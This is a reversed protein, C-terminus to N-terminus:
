QDDDEVHGYTRRIVINSITGTTVGFEEALLVRREGGAVRRRIERVQDDTLKQMRDRCHDRLEQTMVRAAAAERIRQRQYDTHFSRGKLAASRKAKTEESQRVGRRADAMRRLTEAPIGRTGEGGDAINTLPLGDSRGAAIYVREMWAWDSGPPTADIVALIPKLGLTKLGQVWNCRHTNRAEQMHQTLRGRPKDSKGIYRLEGTRPDHLGYIYHWGNVTGQDANFEDITPGVDLQRPGHVAGVKSALFEQYASM